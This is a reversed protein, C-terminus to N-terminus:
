DTDEESYRSYEGYQLSLIKCSPGSGRQVSGGGREQGRWLLMQRNNGVSSYQLVVVYELDGVFLSEILQRGLFAFDSAVSVLCGGASGWRCAIQATSVLRKGLLRQCRRFSSALRSQANAEEGRVESWRVVLFVGGLIGQKLPMATLMWAFPAGSASYPMCFCDFNELILVKMGTGLGVKASSLPLVSDALNAM